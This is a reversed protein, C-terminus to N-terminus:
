RRFYTTHKAPRLRTLENVMDWLGGITSSIIETFREGDNIKICNAPDKRITM